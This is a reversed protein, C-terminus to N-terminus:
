GAQVGQETGGSCIGYTGSRQQQLFLAHFLVAAPHDMGRGEGRTCTARPRRDDAAACRRLSAQRSPLPAARLGRLRACGGEGHKDRRDCSPRHRMDCTEEGQEHAGSLGAHRVQSRARLPRFAAPLVLADDSRWCQPRSHRHAGRRRCM